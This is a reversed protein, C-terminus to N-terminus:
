LDGPGKFVPRLFYTADKFLFLGIVAALLPAIVMVLLGLFTMSIKNGMEGVKKSDGDATILTFGAIIINFLAWLGGVLTVFVILNSIFGSLGAGGGGLEGYQKIAEPPEITGFVNSGTAASLLNKM